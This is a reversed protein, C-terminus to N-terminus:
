QLIEDLPAVEGSRQLAVHEPLYAGYFPVNLDLWICLRRLDDAPLSVDYHGAQLLSIVGSARAGLEGPTTQPVWEGGNVSDFWHVYKKQALAAYSVSHQAGDAIDGTLRIGGDPEEAGHCSVCHRDLVPQVLRPYSFPRSGDPGPAIASPERELALPPRDAPVSNRPEHCGICTQTEGPQLYTISRMSQVAMGREDLAQFYLPVGSPTTFYAPGDDEVPVTGLMYRASVQRAASVKPQDANPTTKPLTSITSGFM